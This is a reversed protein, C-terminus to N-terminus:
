DWHKIRRVEVQRDMWRAIYKSCASGFGSYMIVHWMPMKGAPMEVFNPTPNRNMFIRAQNAKSITFLSRICWLPHHPCDVNCKAHGLSRNFGNCVYRKHIVNITTTTAKPTSNGLTKSADRPNQACNKIIEITKRPNMWQTCERCVNEACAMGRTGRSLATEWISVHPETHSSSVPCLARHTVDKLWSQGPRIQLPIHHLHNVLRVCLGILFVSGM